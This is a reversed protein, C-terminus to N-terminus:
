RMAGTCVTMGDQSKPKACVYNNRLIDAPMCVGVYPCMICMHVCAHTRARMSSIRKCLYPPVICCVLLFFLSKLNQLDPGPVPNFYLPGPISLLPVQPRTPCEGGGGGGPVALRAITLLQCFPFFPWGLHM